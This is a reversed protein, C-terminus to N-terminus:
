ADRRYLLVRALVLLAALWAIVVVAVVPQLHMDSENLHGIAISDSAPGPLLSLVNRQWWSPLLSGFMSPVFILALVASLSAATSRLVVTVAIGIVPFLPGM